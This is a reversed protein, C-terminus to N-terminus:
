RRLGLLRNRDQKVIAFVRQHMSVIYYHEKYNIQQKIIICINLAPSLFIYGM